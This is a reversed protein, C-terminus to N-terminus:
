VRARKRISNLTTTNYLVGDKYVVKLINHGDKLVPETIFGINEDHYLGLLGRKSKKSGHLPEKYVDERVDNIVISNAKMAFQLTDRNVQQLLGSGMGFALNDLTLKKDDLAALIEKISDKTIGDGQIVRICSPLTKYGRENEEYGYKEM